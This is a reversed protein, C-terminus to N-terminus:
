SVKSKRRHQRNLILSLYQEAIPVLHQEDLGKFHDNVEGLRSIELVCKDIEGQLILNRKQHIDLEQKLKENATTTTSTRM